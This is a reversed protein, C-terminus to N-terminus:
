HHILLLDGPLTVTEESMKGGGATEEAAGQELAGNAMAASAGLAGAALPMRDSDKSDAVGAADNALQAKRGFLDSVYPAAQGVVALQLRRQFFTTFKVQLQEARM